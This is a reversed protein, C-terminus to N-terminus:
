WQAVSGFGLNEQLLLGQSSRKAHPVKRVKYKIKLIHIYRYTSINMDICTGESVLFGLPGEPAPTPFLQSSSGTHSM